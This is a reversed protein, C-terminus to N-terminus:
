VEVTSASVGAPDLATLEPEGEEVGVTEKGDKEKGEEEGEFEGGLNGGEEENYEGDAREEVGVGGGGGGDPSNYVVELSITSQPFTYLHEPM